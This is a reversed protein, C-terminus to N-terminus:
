QTTESVTTAGSVPLGDHTRGDFFRGAMTEDLRVSFCDEDVPWTRWLGPKESRTM